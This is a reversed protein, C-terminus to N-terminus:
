LGHHKQFQMQLSRSVTTTQKKKFNTTNTQLFGITPQSGSLGKMEARFFRPERLLYTELDWGVNDSEVSEITYNMKEFYKRVVKIAAEEVKLNHESDTM